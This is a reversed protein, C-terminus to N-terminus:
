GVGSMMMQPVPTVGGTSAPRLAATIGISAGSVSSTTTQAAFTGATAQVSDGTDLAFPDSSLTEGVNKRDNTWTEGSFATSQAHFGIFNVVWANNTVTTISPATGTTSSTSNVQGTATTDMPTTNNVGSYGLVWGLASSSGSGVTFSYSLSSTWVAWYVLLSNTTSNNERLVLTWGTPPTVTLGTGGDTYMCALEIDNAASGTPASLALTSTTADIFVTASAARFAIAAPAPLAWLLALILFLKKM